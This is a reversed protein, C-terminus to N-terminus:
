SERPLMAHQGKNKAYFLISLTERSHCFTSKCCLRRLLVNLFPPMSLSLGTEELIERLATETEAGEM